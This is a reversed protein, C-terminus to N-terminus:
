RGLGASVPCGTRTKVDDRIAKVLTMPSLGTVKLLDTLDVYLEDCSVSEVDLTYSCSSGPFKSLFAM